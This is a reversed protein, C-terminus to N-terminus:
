KIKREQRDKKNYEGYIVQQLTMNVFYSHCVFKYDWSPM